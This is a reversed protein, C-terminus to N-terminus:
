HKQPQGKKKIYDDPHTANITHTATNLTQINPKGSVDTLWTKNKYLLPRKLNCHKNQHTLTLDIYGKTPFIELVAIFSGMHLAPALLSYRFYNMTTTLNIAM